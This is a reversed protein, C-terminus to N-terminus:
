PAARMVVIGGNKVWAVEPTSFRHLPQFDVAAALGSGVAIKAGETGIRPTNKILPTGDNDKTNLAVQVLRAIAVKDEWPDAEDAYGSIRSPGLGDVYALLKAAIPDVVPGGPWIFDGATPVPSFTEGSVLTLTTKGAAPVNKQYSAVRKQVPLGTAGTTSVQVQIRPKKQADIAGQLADFVITNIVVTTSTASDVAVPGDYWDYEYKALSPEVYVIITLAQDAPFAAGTAYYTSCIPRKTDVYTRVDAAANFFRAAGSGATTLVGTVTGLGALHPYMYCRDVGLLAGYEDTAAESWDRFDRATGGKRPKQFRDLLRLLLQVENERDQGRRLPSVLTVDPDVGAPPASFTLRAGASQNAQAGKTVSIISIPATNPPGDTTTAGVTQYIVQGTSDTLLSGDPIVIGGANATPVAAGGTAITAQRRGYIGDVETPLGTTFAWRDLADPSTKSRAEGDNDVQFAPCADNDAQRIEDQILVLGQAEAQSTLGLFGADSLDKDPFAIRHNGLGALRLEEETYVRISM